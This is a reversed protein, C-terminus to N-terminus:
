GFKVEAGLVTIIRTPIASEVVLYLGIQVASPRIDWHLEVRGGELSSLSPVKLIDDICSKIGDEFPSAKAPVESTWVHLPSSKSERGWISLMSFVAAM